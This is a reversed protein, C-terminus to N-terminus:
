KIIIKTKVVDTGGKITAIFVGAQVGEVVVSNDSTKQTFVRQGSMSYVNVEASIGDSVGDFYLTGGAYYVRINNDKINSGISTENSETLATYFEHISWYNTKTGTQEVKVHQATVDPLQIILVSANSQGSVIPDGWNIGDTSVYVSYAGPADNSSNSTDLIIKNFTNPTRMDVAFWQGPTQPGGSDWRTQKNGDIANKAASYNNSASAIWGTRDQLIDAKIEPSVGLNNHWSDFASVNVNLPDAISSQIWVSSEAGMNMFKKPFIYTNMINIKASGTSQLFQSEGSARFNGLIFDLTGGAAVVARYTGGWYNSAFLTVHGDFGAETEIYKTDTQLIGNSDTQKISVIQSNIMDFGESGLGEYYVAKRSADIGLGLAIGSPKESSFVIGRCSGYHFDNYLIQNRCNGLIMFDLNNWNYAYCADKSPQDKPDPSNPWSGFKSEGGSSYVITNFQTNCIKGNESGGGVNIGTKFIHGALYDVYHNDCKYTFLDLARFVARLGVNVVYVDKGTVQICYPYEPVNPMLTYVQEPYNFSVGRLGSRESLKIFPEANPNGKGAYVELISGQARPVTAFDSAGKLEVGTPVVLNGEVKYKGSPMYVIGGGENGAKDLASQIASTNDTVGDPKAGFMADTVNYLVSRTPKTEPVKMEPFEPLAKINVPTHDVICDFMSKNDVDAETSFRNGTLVARSGNGIKIQPTSNNFDSDSSTYIGGFAEVRGSNIVCQQTLLKVSASKDILISNATANFECGYLQVQGPANPSVVVGNECDIAKIRTFMMGSMATAQIELATKCNKFTLAYNHGNPVDTTKGSVMSYAAQFGKNYGEINAFCTYSWDNRRMVIGTGNEYIWKSYASGKSPSGPLGSGAWYDPSFDLWEFRGVDAINDIEIGRSLPTGYLGYINPCGGGNQRSLIVGSYSNVLTVNRVNCYDNGWVGTRGYLITPPYKKISNPDQEPYWISLNMVGTSPEMTIFSSSEVEFNRGKYAMLITGEVPEGKVPKKWEGRLTVGTPIVLYGDIKYKGKPAYLVGGGQAKLKNLLEQFIAHSNTNGTNDAGHETVTYTAVGIDDSPYDSEIIKWNPDQAFLLFSFSSVLCLAFLNTIRKM